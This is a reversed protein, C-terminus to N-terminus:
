NKFLTGVVTAAGHVTTNALAVSHKGNVVQYIIGAVVVLTAVSVVGTVVAGM